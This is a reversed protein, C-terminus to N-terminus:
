DVEYLRPLHRAVEVAVASSGLQCPVVAARWLVAAVQCPAAAARCPRAAPVHCPLLVLRLHLSEPLLNLEVLSRAAARVEDRLLVVWPPNCQVLEKSARQVM